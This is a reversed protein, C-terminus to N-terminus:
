DVVERHKAYPSGQFGLEAHRQDIVHVLEVRLLRPQSWSLLAIESAEFRLEDPACISEDRDIREERIDDGFPIRQRADLDDL